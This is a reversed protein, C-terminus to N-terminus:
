KVNNMIPLEEVCYHLLPKRSSIISQLGNDSPRDATRPYKRPLNTIPSPISPLKQTTVLEKEHKDACKRKSRGTSACKNNTVILKINNNATSDLWFHFIYARLMTWRRTWSADRNYSIQKKCATPIESHLDQFCASIIRTQAEASFQGHCTQGYPFFSSPDNWIERLRQRQSNIAEESHFRLCYGVLPSLFEFRGPGCPAMSQFSYVLSEQYSWTAHVERFLHELIYLALWRHNLSLWIRNMLSPQTHFEVMPHSIVNTSHEKDMAIHVPNAVRPSSSSQRMGTKGLISSSHNVQEQLLALTVSLGIFEKNLHERNLDKRNPIDFQFFVGFCSKDNKLISLTKVKCLFDVPTYGCQRSLCLLTAISDLNFNRRLQRAWRVYLCLIDRQPEWVRILHIIEDETLTSSEENAVHKVALNIKKLLEQSHQDNRIGTVGLRALSEHSAASGKSANNTRTVLQAHLDDSATTDDSENISPRSAM